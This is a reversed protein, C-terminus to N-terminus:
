NVVGGGDPTPLCLEHRTKDKEMRQSTVGLAVKARELTRDTIGQEKAMAAVKTVWVCDDKLTEILFDKAEQLKRPTTNPVKEVEEPVMITCVIRTTDVEVGDQEVTVEEMHYSLTAAKPANNNKPAELYPIGNRSRDVLLVARVLNAYAVSGVIRDIADLKINKNLHTVLVAGAKYKAVADVFPVMAQRLELNNYDDVKGLYASIPDIIILKVDGRDDLLKTLEILDDKLRFPKLGGTPTKVGYVIEVMSLDAGNAILRPVITDEADDEASLILVRGKPANGGDPLKSGTTVAAAIM